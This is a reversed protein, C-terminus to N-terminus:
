ATADTAPVADHTHHVSEELTRLKHARAAMEIEERPAGSRLLDLIGDHEGVSTLSRVPEFAFLNRRMVVVSEQQRELLHLLTENPCPACLIEHFRANLASFERPDFSEGQAMVRMRDNVAAAEALQEPTLHAAATATACGELLALVQMADAYDHVDVAAVEAGVNRTFRVLREAELRRVAERVPVVSVGFESALTGLVLRYGGGYRGSLIRARLERYVTESKSLSPSLPDAM